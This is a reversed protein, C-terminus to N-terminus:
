DRKIRYSGSVPLSVQHGHARGGQRWAGRIAVALGAGVPVMWALAFWRSDQFRDMRMFLVTAAGTIALSPWRFLVAVVAADWARKAEGLVRILEMRKIMM